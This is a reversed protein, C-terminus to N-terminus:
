TSCTLHVGELRCEGVVSATALIASNPATYMTDTQGERGVFVGDEDIATSVAAPISLRDEAPAPHGNDEKDSSAATTATTATATTAAVTTDPPITASPAEPEAAAIIHVDAALPRQLTPEEPQNDDDGASLRDASM